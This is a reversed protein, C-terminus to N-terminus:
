PIAKESAPARGGTELLTACHAPLGSERVAKAAATVDYDVRRLTIEFTSDLDALVYGARPDGDKPKGVSGTNVFLMGEVHKQYPLHTHGFFLVDCDAVRAINRFVSEPRDEYMYENVKRPSGHVFRL